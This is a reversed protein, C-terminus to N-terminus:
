YVYFNFLHFLLENVEFYNLIFQNLLTAIASFIGVNCGYSITHILFSKNLLLHKVSKMFVSLTVKEKNLKEEYMAQSPPHIPEAPFDLPFKM